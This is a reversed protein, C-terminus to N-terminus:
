VFRWGIKRSRQMQEGADHETVFSLAHSKGVCFQFVPRLFPVKKEKKNEERKIKMKKKKYLCLNASRNQM